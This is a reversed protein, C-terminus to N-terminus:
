FSPLSWTCPKLRLELILEVVPCQAIQTIKRKLRDWGGWRYFPSFITVGLEFPWQSCEMHLYATSVRYTTLVWLSLLLRQEYGACWVADSLGKGQRDPYGGGTWRSASSHPREHRRASPAGPQRWRVLGCGPLMWCHTSHNELLAAPRLRFWKQTVKNITQTISM